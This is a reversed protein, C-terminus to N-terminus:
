TVQKLMYTYNIRQKRYSKYVLALQSRYNNSLSASVRQPMNFKKFM